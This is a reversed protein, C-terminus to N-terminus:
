LECCLSSNNERRLRCRVGASVEGGEGVSGEGCWVGWVEKGAQWGSEWVGIAWGGECKYAKGDGGLWKIGLGFEGGM